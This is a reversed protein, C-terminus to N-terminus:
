RLSEAIRVAESQGVDGEIRTLIGDRELLLTNGALRQPEYNADGDPRVYAFGHAGGIFYARAGDIRLRAISTAQGLAKEIVPTTTAEFQQVILREYDFTVVLPGGQPLRDLYIGAAQRGEPVRLAFGARRRATALDVRTGLPGIEPRADPRPEQREVRVSKLGLLELVADRAGPSVALTTAPAGLLLAALVVLLTRRNRRPRAPAPAAVPRLPATALIRARVAGAIDPTEPWAIDLDRLERDLDLM